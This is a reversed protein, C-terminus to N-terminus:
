QSDSVNIHVINQSYELKRTTFQHVSTRKEKKEKSSHVKRDVQIIRRVFDIRNAIMPISNYEISSM